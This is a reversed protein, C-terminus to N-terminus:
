EAAPPARRRKRDIRPTAPWGPIPAARAYEGGRETEGIEQQLRPDDEVAGVDAPFLRECEALRADLDADEEDASKHRGREERANGGDNQCRVDERPRREDAAGQRESHEDIRNDA